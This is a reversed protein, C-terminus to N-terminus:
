QANLIWLIEETKLTMVMHQSYENRFLSLALMPPMNAEVNKNNNLDTFKICKRKCNHYFVSLMFSVM